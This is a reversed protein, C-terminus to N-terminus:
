FEALYVEKEREGADESREEGKKKKIQKFLNYHLM